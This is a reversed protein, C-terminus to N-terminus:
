RQMNPFSNRTDKEIRFRRISEILPFYFSEDYLDSNIQIISSIYEWLDGTDQCLIAYWAESIIWAYLGLSTSDVGSKMFRYNCDLTSKIIVSVYFSIPVHLSSSLFKRDIETRNDNLFLLNIGNLTDVIEFIQELVDPCGEQNYQNKLSSELTEILSPTMAIECVNLENTYAHYKLVNEFTHLDDNPIPM